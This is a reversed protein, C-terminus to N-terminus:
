RKKTKAQRIKKAEQKNPVHERTALEAKLAKVYDLFDDSELRAEELDMEFWADYELSQAVRCRRLEKLLQKTHLSKLDKSAPATLPLRNKNGLMKGKGMDFGGDDM